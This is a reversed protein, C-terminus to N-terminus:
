LVYKCLRHFYGLHTTLIEGTINFKDNQQIECTGIGKVCCQRLEVYSVTASLNLSFVTNKSHLVSTAAVTVCVDSNCQFCYM